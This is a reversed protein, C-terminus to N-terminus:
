VLVSLLFINCFCHILPLPYFFIINQNSLVSVVFLKKEKRKKEKRKQRKKKKKM